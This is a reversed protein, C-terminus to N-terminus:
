EGLRGHEGVGKCLSNRMGCQAAKGRRPDLRFFGDAMTAYLPRLCTRATFSAPFTASSPEASWAQYTRSVAVTFCVLTGCCCTAPLYTVPEVGRRAIEAEFAPTLVKESHTPWHKDTLDVYPKIQEQTVQPWRHSGPFYQFPGSDPHIDSLAIWAALYSDGVHVPNLYADQHWDRTTSRWGTLCLHLGVPEQILKEMEVHLPEYSFLDALPKHRMYAIPEPWGGPNSDGHTRIWEEEYATMLDDPMMKPLYVVGDDNWDWPGPAPPAVTLDDFTPM